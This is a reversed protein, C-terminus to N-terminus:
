IDPVDTELRFTGRLFIHQNEALIKENIVQFMRCCCRCENLDTDKVQLNLNPNPLTHESLNRTERVPFPNAKFRADSIKRMFTVCFQVTVQRLLNNIDFKRNNNVYM